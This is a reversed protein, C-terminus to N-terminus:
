HQVFEKVLPKLHTDEADGMYIMKKNLFKKKQESRLQGVALYKLKGNKEQVSAVVGSDAPSNALIAAIKVGQKKLEHQHVYVWDKIVDLCNRSLITVEKVGYKEQLQKYNTLWEQGLPIGKLAKRRKKQPIAAIVTRYLSFHERRQQGSRLLFAHWLRVPLLNKGHKLYYLIITTGSSVPIM